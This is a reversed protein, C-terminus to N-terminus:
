TKVRNKANCDHLFNLEFTIIDKKLAFFTSQWRELKCHIFIVM